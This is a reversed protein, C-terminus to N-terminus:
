VRGVLEGVPKRPKAAPTEDPFGLPIIVPVETAEPLGLIRKLPERELWGVWCAGLGENVAALVLHDLAIATDFAHGPECCAVVLVPAESIFEQHCAERAIRRRTEADHVFIFRYPQRNNGSPALSLAEALRDLKDQPIQGPKYRRISRRRRLVDLFEM